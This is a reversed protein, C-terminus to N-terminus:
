SSRLYEQGRLRLALLVTRNNSIIDTFSLVKKKTKVNKNKTKKVRTPLTHRKKAEKEPSPGLSFLHHCLRDRYGVAEPPLSTYGEERSATPISGVSRRGLMTNIRFRHSANVM